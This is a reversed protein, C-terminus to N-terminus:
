GRDPYFDAVPGAVPQLTPLRDEVSEGRHLNASWGEPQAENRLGCIQPEGRLNEGLPSGSRGKM